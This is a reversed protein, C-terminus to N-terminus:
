HSLELTNVNKIIYLRILSFFVDTHILIWQTECTMSLRKKFISMSNDAAESLQPEKKWLPPARECYSRPWFYSSRRTWRLVASVRWLSRWGICVSVCVSASRSHLQTISGVTHIHTHTIHRANMAREDDIFLMGWTQYVMQSSVCVCVIEKETHVTCSSM